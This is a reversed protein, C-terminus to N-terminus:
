SQIFVPITTITGILASEGGVCMCHTIDSFVSVKRDMLHYLVTSVTSVFEGHYSITIPCPRQFNHLRQIILVLELTVTESEPYLHIVFHTNVRKINLLSVFTGGLTALDTAPRHNHSGTWKLNTVHEKVM